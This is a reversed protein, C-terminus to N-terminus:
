KRPVDIADLQQDMMDVGGMNHNYSIICTPKTTINGDKDRENAYGIAPAHATSLVYVEKPMGNSRDKKARYQGCGYRWTPLISCWRKWAGTVENWSSLAEYARQNNRHCIDWKTDLIRSLLPLHLLQWHLSSTGQELIEAHSNSSNERYDISLKRFLNIRTGLEWSVCHFGSTYWQIQLTLLAQKWIKGM